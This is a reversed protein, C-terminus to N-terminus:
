YIYELFKFSLNNNLVLNIVASYYTFFVQEKGMEGQVGQQQNYHFLIDLIKIFYCVQRSPNWRPDSLTYQLQMFYSDQDSSFYLVSSTFFGCVLWGFYRGSCFVRCRVSCGSIYCPQFYNRVVAFKKTHKMCLEM